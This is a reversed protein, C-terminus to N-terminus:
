IYKMLKMFKSLFYTLDTRITIICSWGNKLCENHQFILSEIANETEMIFGHNTLSILKWTPGKMLPYYFPDYEIDIEFKLVDYDEFYDNIIKNSIDVNFMTRLLLSNIKKNTKRKVSVMIKNYELSDKSYHEIEVNINNLGFKNNIKKIKGFNTIDMYEREIRVMSNMVQLTTM